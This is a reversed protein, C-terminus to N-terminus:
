KILNSNVVIKRIQEEFYYAIDFNDTAQNELVIVSIKNKPYYLNVATFGATPMFGTHGYEVINEKDNIRLGYGYGIEKESFLTHINTISYHIMKQYTEPKLIKGNHLAFNWKALDPASVTLNSGHFYESKLPFDTVLSRGKEQSIFYSNVTPFKEKPYFSNNMKLNSFLNNVLNEYKNKTINELIQGLLAYGINSYKFQTGPEFLLNEKIEWSDIGSSNNLLHHVKVKSAWSYNFNKLYKSIPSNLDIKGKEFELLILTATVQKAISMSSFQQNIKLRTTKTEDSFGHTKQYINKGNESILVVGSFNRPMNTVVLSDIKEFTSKNELIKSASCSLMLFSLIILSYTLIKNMLKQENKTM